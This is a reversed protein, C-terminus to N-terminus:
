FSGDTNSPIDKVDKVKVAKEVAEFISQKLRVQILDAIKDLMDQEFLSMFEIRYDYEVGDGYDHEISVYKWLTLVKHYAEYWHKKPNMKDVIPKLAVQLDEVLDDLFDYGVDGLVSQIATEHANSNGVPTLDILVIDQDGVDYVLDHQNYRYEGRAKIQEDNLVQFQLYNEVGNRSWVPFLMTDDIMREHKDRHLLTHAPIKELSIEIIEVHGKDDSM